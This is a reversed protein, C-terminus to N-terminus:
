KMQEIVFEKFGHEFIVDRENNLKELLILAEERELFLAEDINFAVETNLAMPVGEQVDTGKYYFIVDPDELLGTKLVFGGM